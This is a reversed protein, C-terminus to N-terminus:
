LDLTITSGEIQRINKIHVLYAAIYSALRINENTTEEYYEQLNKLTVTRGRFENILQDFFGYSFTYKIRKDPNGYLFEINGNEVERFLFDSRKEGRSLTNIDIWEANTCEEVLQTGTEHKIKIENDVPIDKGLMFLAAEVRRMAGSYDAKKLDINATDSGDLVWRCGYNNIADDIAQRIIVNARWNSTIHKTNNNYLRDFKYMKSSPNRNDNGAAPSWAFNLDDPLLNNKHSDFYKVVLLGLAAAVRSDYIIFEDFLLAYVKTFGANSRLSTRDFKGFEFDNYQKEAEKLIDIITNNDKKRKEIWEMNFKYLSAQEKGAGWLLIKAVEEKVESEEPDQKAYATRIGKSLGQLLGYNKKYGDDPEPWYYKNFADELTKFERKSEKKRKALFRDDYTHNIDIKGAIVKALYEIFEENDKLYKQKNM